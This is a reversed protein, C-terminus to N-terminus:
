IYRAYQPAGQGRLNSLKENAKKYARAIEPRCADNKFQPLGSLKQRCIPMLISEVLGDSIPFQIGPDTTHDGTDIDLAGIGWAASAAKYAMSYAMDPMPAVRIRRPVYALGATYAGELYWFRPRSIIKQVFWFFPYGYATGDANVVLPYGSMRMFTWRDTCAILPSQNPLSVPNLVKAVTGDLQVADGYVTAEASSTTSGTYPRALVTQSTMENDQPDGAIRITCGLMWSQYGTFTTIVNSANTVSLTVTTPANLYAGLNQEKSELPADGSYDQLSSNIVGVIDDPDTPEIPFPQGSPSAPNLSTVGFDRLLRLALARVTVTSYNADGM